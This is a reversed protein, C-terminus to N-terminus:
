EDEGQEHCEECVDEEHFYCDHEDCYNYDDRPPNCSECDHNLCNM